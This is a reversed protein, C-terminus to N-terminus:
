DRPPCIPLLKRVGFRSNFHKPVLEPAHAFVVTKLGEPSLMVVTILAWQWRSGIFSVEKATQFLQKCYEFQKVLRHLVFSM